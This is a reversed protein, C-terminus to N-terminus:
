SMVLFFHFFFHLRCLNFPMIVTISFNNEENRYFDFLSHEFLSSSSSTLTKSFTKYIVLAMCNECFFTLSPHTKKRGM